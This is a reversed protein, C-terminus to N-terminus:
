SRVIKGLTRETTRHCKKTQWHQADRLVVQAFPNFMITFAPGQCKARGRNVLRLDLELPESLQETGRFVFAVKHLQSNPSFATLELDPAKTIEGIYLWLAALAVLLSLVSVVFNRDWWWAKLGPGSLSQVHIKKRGV